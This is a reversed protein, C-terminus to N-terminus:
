SNSGRRLAGRSFLSNRRSTGLISPQLFIFFGWAADRPKKTKRETRAVRPPQGYREARRPDSAKMSALPVKM